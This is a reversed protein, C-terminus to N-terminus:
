LMGDSHQAWDHRIKQLVKFHRRQGHSKIPLFVPIPQWKTRWPIKRVWSVFRCKQTEQVAPLNEAQQNMLSAWNIEYRQVLLVGIARVWVFEMLSKTLTSLFLYILLCFLHLIKFYHLNALRVSQYFDM